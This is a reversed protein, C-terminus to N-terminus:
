LQSRVNSFSCFLLLLLLLLLPSSIVLLIQFVIHCFALNGRKSSKIQGDSSLSVM